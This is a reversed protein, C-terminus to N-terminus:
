TQTIIEHKQGGQKIRSLKECFTLLKNARVRDMIRMLDAKSGPNSLRVAKLKQSHPKNKKERELGSFTRDKFFERVARVLNQDRNDLLHIM